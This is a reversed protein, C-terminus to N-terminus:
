LFKLEALVWSKGLCQFLSDLRIGYILDLPEQLQHLTKRCRRDLRECQRGQLRAPYIAALAAVGTGLLVVAALLMWPVALGTGFDGPAGISVM